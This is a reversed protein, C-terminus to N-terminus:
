HAGDLEEIFKIKAFSLTRCLFPVISLLHQNHTVPKSSPQPVKTPKQMSKNVKKNSNRKRKRRKKNNENFVPKIVRALRLGFM